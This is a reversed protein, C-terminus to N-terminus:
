ELNYIYMNLVAAGEAFYYYTKRFTFSLTSFCGPYWIEKWNWWQSAHTTVTSICPWPGPGVSATSCLTLLTPCVVNWQGLLSSWLLSNVPHPYFLLFTKFRQCFCYHGFIEKSTIYDFAFQLEGLQSFVIRLPLHISKKQM